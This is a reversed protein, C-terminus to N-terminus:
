NYMVEQLRKITEEFDPVLIENESHYLDDYPVRNEVLEYQSIEPLVSMLRLLTLANLDHEIDTVIDEAMLILDSASVDQMSNFIQKLVTRQRQTREYDSNGVSRNRMYALAQEGDLLYTGETFWWSSNYKNIYEAEGQSLSIEVGGLADIVASVAEFDVSAYNDIELEYSEELTEVLLDAGSVAYAYNLKHVGYGPIDAYLDRMFSTMILKETNANVTMLIMIDSNGNWSDDRRDSGILLLQYVSKGNPLVTVAEAADESAAAVGENGEADAAAEASEDTGANALADTILSLAAGAVAQTESAFGAFASGCTLGLCLVAAILRKKMM